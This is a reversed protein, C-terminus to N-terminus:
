SEMGRKEMGVDIPGGATRDVVLAPSFGISKAARGGGSELPLHGGYRARSRLVAGLCSAVRRM